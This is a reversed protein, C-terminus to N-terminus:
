AAPKRLHSRRLLWCAAVLLIAAIVLMMVDMPQMCALQNVLLRATRGTWYGFRRALSESGSGGVAWCFTMVGFRQDVNGM